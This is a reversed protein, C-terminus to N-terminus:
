YKTNAGSWRNLITLFILTQYELFMFDIYFGTQVSHLTQLDNCSLGLPVDSGAWLNIMCVDLPKEFTM